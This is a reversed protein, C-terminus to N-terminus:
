CFWPETLRPVARPPRGSAVGPAVSRGVAASALEHIRTFVSEPDASERAGREVVAAVREQLRDVRPDPHQWGHSFTTPNFPGLFPDMAPTGILSSGRPVLLRIVLQVPDVHRVLDRQLIFEVLELYDILTTWPTFAVFTPRLPIGAADAIALATDVDAATHGKQFNALIHDHVAEVASVIFLCGAAALTPIHPRHELIHEVKITADFTLRPFAEHMAEVIRLSHRIGNFFDPDGFTIHEAGMQVLQGIDQLVVDAGVVRLRGNYVPTIPCHLCRHACGRSAEVYGVLKQQGAGTDVRAYRELPPLLDRRPLEFVQRGLFTGGDSGSARVGDLTATRSAGNASLACALRVLPEEFEGGIASDASAGILVDAHLSAYLGYFAIHCGPNLARVREAVRAGLRTATHMPVSIGVLTAERVLTEDLPEVSLDQCRVDFGAAILHAAPRAVALPQHGLEYTSLLLVNM